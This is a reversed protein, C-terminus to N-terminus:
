FDAKIIDEQKPDIDIAIVNLGSTALYDSFIGQGASPELFESISCGKERLVDLTKNVCYNMDEESTYYQDLNLKNTGKLEIYKFKKEM